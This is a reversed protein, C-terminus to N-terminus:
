FTRITPLPTWTLSLAVRWETLPQTPQDPAVVLTESHTIGAESHVRWTEAFHWNIGITAIDYYGRDIGLMVAGHNNQVRAASLLLDIKETLSQTDSLTLTQRQALVGGTYPELSNAYDLDLHGRETAYTFTFGGLAGISSTAQLAVPSDLSETTRLEELSRQSAGVYAKLTMRETFNHQLDLRLGSERSNGFSLPTILQNDFGSVTLATNQALSFKEGLSLSAYKYGSLLNYLESNPGYYGIDLWSLQLVLSRRETQQHSFALSGQRTRRNVGPAVLGTDPIDTALTSYDSVGGQLTLQGVEGTWDYEGTLSESHVNAYASNSIQQWMLWPTLSLQNTESSWQFVASPNVYASQTTTAPLSLYRNSDNDLWISAQPAISWEAAHAPPPGGALCGVGLAAQTMRTM